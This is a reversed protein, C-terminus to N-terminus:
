AELVCRRALERARDRDMGGGVADQAILRLLASAFEADMQVGRTAAFVAGAWGRLTSEVPAQGIGKGHLWRRAKQTMAKAEAAEERRRAADDQLARARDELVPRMVTERDRIAATLSGHTETETRLWARADTTRKAMGLAEREDPSLGAADAVATLWAAKPVGPVGWAPSAGLMVVRALELQTGDVGAAIAAVVDSWKDAQAQASVDLPSLRYIRARNDGITKVVRVWGLRRLAVLARRGADPSMGLALGLYAESIPVGTGRGKDVEKLSRAGVVVVARRALAMLQPSYGFPAPAFVRGVLRRSLSLRDREKGTGPSLSDTHDRNHAEHARILARWTRNAPQGGRAALHVGVGHLANGAMHVPLGLSTCKALTAAALSRDSTYADRRDRVWAELAAQRTATDDITDIGMTLLTTRGYSM